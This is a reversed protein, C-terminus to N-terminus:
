EILRLKNITAFIDQMTKTLDSAQSLDYYYSSQSACAELLSSDGDEVRVVFLTIGQAKAATCALATRANIASNSTSWRNQTNAGDTVIIMYKKVDTDGFATAKTYPEAPSLMEMGFQVGLTINTNGGPSLSSLYTNVSTFDSTLDLVKALATTSCSAAIYNSDVVDTAYPAVSVDFSQNRDTLCGGWSSTALSSFYSSSFATYGSPSYAVSTGTSTTLGSSVTSMVLTSANVTTTLNYTYLTYKSGSKAYGMLSAAYYTVGGSTYVRYFAKSTATACITSGVQDCLAEYARWVTRCAYYNVSTRLYCQTYDVFSYSTSAPLRVQTNFAVVGVKVDENGDGYTSILSSLVSSVSTKLYTMKNNSAMSGTTDLVFLLEFPDSESQASSAVRITQEGLGLLQLFYPRQTIESTYHVVKANDSTEIAFTHSATQLEPHDSLNMEFAMAAATKAAAESVEIKQTAKLVAADTADQLRSSTDFYRMMDVAGGAAGVLIVACLGFIILTNGQRDGIFKTLSQSIWMM